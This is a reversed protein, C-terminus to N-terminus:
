SKNEELEAWRTYLGEVKKQAESLDACLKALKDPNSANEPEAIKDEINAVQKEAKEIKEPIKGLEIREAHTLQGGKNALPNFSGSASDSSNSKLLAPKKANKDERSEKAIEWQLYSAFLEIRGDGLLGAISTSVRDLLFRDHTVLIIAGPFEELSDELVELTPIDLDNTPEDLVLIDAPNRMLRAILVRAQEGGSLRNLSVSLQEPSFLFKRAWASSVYERGNVVISRADGMLAEELSMTPDLSKRQQDFFSIKVGNAHLVEGSDPKLNGILVNLLTSKGSGNDGAVGLCTGPSLVVSFNNFLCNGGLSKSVAEAKLLEKSRKGSAAFEVKAARSDLRMSKLEDIMKLAEATRHKSKTTRAKAGQRLWATERRVKNSLTDQNKRLQALFSERFDLFDAYAGDSSITGNPYRRDLEIVRSALAEVFYRDHSVFAVACPLGRIQDELWEIGAIDLHNTPEDLLLLDPEQAFGRALALRKKWGGSLRAVELSRDSFGFRGLYKSIKASRERDNKAIAQDMVSFVTSDNEFIDQQPVYAVHLDRRSTIAGDDPKDETALMRLLTSKGSGNAGLIAVRENEALTVTLDSFLAKGSLTKSIKQAVLLSAM